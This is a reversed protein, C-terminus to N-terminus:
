QICNHALLLFKEKGRHQSNGTPSSQHGLREVNETSPDLSLLVGPTSLLQLFCRISIELRRMHMRVCVCTFTKFNSIPVAIIEVSLPCLHSYQWLDIDVEVLITLSEFFIVVFLIISFPWSLTSASSSLCNFDKVIFPLSCRSCRSLLYNLACM